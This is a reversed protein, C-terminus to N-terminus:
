IPTSGHTFAYLYRGIIDTEIHVYDGKQLSGLTTNELTHPILAVTITSQQVSAITLSVGDITISGKQVCFKILDKPLTIVLCGVGGRPPPSSQQVSQTISVLVSNLNELVETNRFRLIRVGRADLHEKRERDYQKEEFNDHISGDLEIGLRLEECYFDLIFRGVPRQRRFYFGNLQKRRLANWLAAEAKTPKKRMAKAYRVIQKPPYRYQDLRRVVKQAISGEGADIVSGVGECHGQVIHGDLRASAICAREVNVVDGVQLSGLKSTAWTEAMIDFTISTTDYAIVSLCVGSVAISQGTYLDDYIDPCTLVLQTETKQKITAVAEIIGTFM